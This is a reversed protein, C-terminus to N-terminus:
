PPGNFFYESSDLEGKGEVLVALRRRNDKSFVTSVQHLVQEYTLSKLSEMVDENKEQVILGERIVEFREPSLLKKCEDSFNNLFHEVRHLLDSPPHTSSQIFFYHCIKEDLVNGWSHLQYATQQKTRLEYFFETRLLVALVKHISELDTNSEGAEVFLLLANGSRDIKHFSVYDDLFTFEGSHDKRPRQYAKADLALLIEKWLELIQEQIDGGIVLAEIFLQKFYSREFDKYEKFDAELLAGYVEVQTSFAPNLLSDLIEQAYDLLPPDGLYSDILEKKSKEFQAKSTKGNKLLSFFRRFISLSEEKGVKLFVSVNSGEIELTGAIGEEEDFEQKFLTNLRHAFIKNLAGEKEISYFSPREIFFFANLSDTNKIWSLAGREDELLLVPDKEEIESEDVDFFVQEEKFPILPYPAEENWQDLKEQSVRRIVYPSGMWKEIRSLKVGAEEPAAVLAYICEFANLETLLSNTEAVSSSRPEDDILDSSTKLVGELNSEFSPHRDIKKVLNQSIGIQKFGNLMQFCQSVVEEYESLGEDSLLINFMFLGQDKSIKWFEVEAKRVQPQKELTQVLGELGRQLLEIAQSNTFSMEWILFLSRNKLSPKLYIFCGKQELLTIKDRKCKEKKNGGPIKSFYYNAAVELVELPDSSMLVLKMLHPQYRDKFWKEVDARRVRSLTKLNGCSLKRNPHNPNGSEKLVRWLRLPDDELSDEFEHHVAHVEREIASIEFLPNIFFQSFLDLAGSFSSKPISFGYLTRDWRTYANYEGGRELVYRSFDNEGPYAESGLFLLHEVFHAMGPHEEPDDWSGAEVSLAASVQTFSPDSILLAEIGNSLHIKLTQQSSSTLEKSSVEKHCLVVGISFFIVQVIM